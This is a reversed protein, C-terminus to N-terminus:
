YDLFPLPLEACHTHLSDLIDEYMEVARDYFGKRLNADAFGIVIETAATYVMIKEDNRVVRQYSSAHKYAEFLKEVQGRLDHAQERKTQM